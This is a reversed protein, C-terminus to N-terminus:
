HGTMSDEPMHEWGRGQLCSVYAIAIQTSSAGPAASAQARCRGADQAFDRQTAGQKAWTGEAWPPETSCAALVCIACTMLLTKMTAGRLRRRSVAFFAVTAMARGSRRQREGRESVREM